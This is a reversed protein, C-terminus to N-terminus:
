HVYVCSCVSGALYVRSHSMHAVQVCCAGLVEGDVIAGLVCVPAVHWTFLLRCGAATIRGSGQCAEQQLAFQICLRVGKCPSAQLQLLWRGSCASSCSGCEAAAALCFQLYACARCRRRRAAAAQAAAHRSRCHMQLPGQWHSYRLPSAPRWQQLPRRAATPSGSSASAVTRQQARQLLLVACCHCRQTLGAPRTRLCMADVLFVARCTISVDRSSDGPHWVRSDCPSYVSHVCARLKGWVLVRSHLM